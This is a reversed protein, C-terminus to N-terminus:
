RTAEPATDTAGRTLRRMGSSASWRPISSARPPPGTMFTSTSTQHEAPGAADALDQDCDEHRQHDDARRTERDKRFDHAADGHALGGLESSADETELVHVQVEEGAVERQLAPLNELAAHVFPGELELPQVDPDVIQRENEAMDPDRLERQDRRHEVDHTAARRVEVEGVEQFM